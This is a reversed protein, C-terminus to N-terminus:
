FRVTYELSTIKVKKM